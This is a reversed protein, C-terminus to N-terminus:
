RTGGPSAPSLDAVPTAPPATSEPPRDRMLAAPWRTQESSELLTLVMMTLPVALLAGMAGLVIGWFFLSIIVVVPAVNLSEGAWKPQLVNYVVTNIVSFAVVVVCTGYLLAQAAPSAAVPQRM